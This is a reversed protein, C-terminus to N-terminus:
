SAEATDAQIASLHRVRDNIQVYADEFSTQGGRRVPDPISWHIRPLDPSLEEHANDCVAVVLQDGGGLMDQIKIPVAHELGLGHRRAVAVASPHV